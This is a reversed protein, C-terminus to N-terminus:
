KKLSNLVDIVKTSMNFQKDAVVVIAAVTVMGAVKATFKFFKNM